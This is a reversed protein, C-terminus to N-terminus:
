GMVSPGILLPVCTTWTVLNERLIRSFTRNLSDYLIIIAVSVITPFIIIGSFKTRKRVRGHRKREKAAGRADRSAKQRWNETFYVLAQEGTLDYMRRDMIAWPRKFRSIKAIDFNYMLNANVLLSNNFRIFDM